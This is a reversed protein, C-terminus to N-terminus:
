PADNMGQNSEDLIPYIIISGGDHPIVKYDGDIFKKSYLQRKTTIKTYGKARGAIDFSPVLVFARGDDYPVVKVM